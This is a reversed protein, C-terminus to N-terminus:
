SRKDSILKNVFAVEEEIQEFREDSGTSKQELESIRRELGEIKSELSPDLRKKKEGLYSFLSAALTMLVLGGVIVFAIGM